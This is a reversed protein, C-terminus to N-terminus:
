AGKLFEITRQYYRIESKVPDFCYHVNFILNGQKRHYLVTNRHKGTIEIVEQLSYTQETPKM